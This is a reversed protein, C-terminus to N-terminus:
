RFTPQVAVMSEWSGSLIEASLSVCLFCLFLVLFIIPCSWSCTPFVQKVSCYCAILSSARESGLPICFSNRKEVDICKWTFHGPCLFFNTNIQCWIGLVSDLHNTHHDTLLISPNIMSTSSRQRVCSDWLYLNMKYEWM